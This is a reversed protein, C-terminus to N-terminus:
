KVDRDYHTQSLTCSFFVKNSDGPHRVFRVCIIMIVCEVGECDHLPIPKGDRSTCFRARIVIFNGEPNRSVCLKKKEPQVEKFDVFINPM